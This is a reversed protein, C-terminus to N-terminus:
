RMWWRHDIWQEEDNANNIANDFWPYERSLEVLLKTMETMQADRKGRTERAVGIRAKMILFLEAAFCDNDVEDM